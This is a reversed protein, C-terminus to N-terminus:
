GTGPSCPSELKAERLTGLPSCRLLHVGFGQASPPTLLAQVQSVPLTQSCRLSARLEGAGGRLGPVPLALKGRGAGKRRWSNEVKQELLARELLQPFSNVRTRFLTKFHTFYVCLNCFVWRYQFGPRQMFGGSQANTWQSREPAWGGDEMDNLM